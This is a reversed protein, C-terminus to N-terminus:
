SKTTRFKAYAEEVARVQDIGDMEMLEFLAIQDVEPNSEAAAFFFGVNNIKIDIAKLERILTEDAPSSGMKM